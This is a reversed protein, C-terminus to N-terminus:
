HMGEHGVKKAPCEDCQKMNVIRCGGGIHPCYHLEIM